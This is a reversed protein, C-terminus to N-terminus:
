EIYQNYAAADICIYWRSSVVLGTNKFPQINLKLFSLQGDIKVVIDAVWPLKIINGTRLDNLYFLADEEQTLDIKKKNFHTTYKWVSTLRKDM